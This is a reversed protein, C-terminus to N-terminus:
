KIKDVYNQALIGNEYDSKGFNGSLVTEYVSIKKM